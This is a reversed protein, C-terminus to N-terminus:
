VGQASSSWWSVVHARRWETAAGLWGSAEECWYPWEDVMPFTRGIITGCRDRSNERPRLLLFENIRHKNRVQYIKGTRSAAGYHDNRGVVVQPRPDACCKMETKGHVVDVGRISRSRADVSGGNRGSVM